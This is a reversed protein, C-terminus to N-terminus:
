SETLKNNCKSRLEQYYDDPNETSYFFKISMIISGGIFKLINIIIMFSVVKIIFINVENDKIKGYIIGGMVTFFASNILVKIMQFFSFNYITPYFVLWPSLLKKTKVEFFLFMSYANNELMFTLPFDVISELILIIITYLKSLFSTQILWIKSGFYVFNYLPLVIFLIWGIIQLTNAIALEKYTEESKEDLVTSCLFILNLLLILPTIIYQYIIFCVIYFFYTYFKSKKEKKMNLIKDDDEIIM